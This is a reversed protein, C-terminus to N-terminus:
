DNTEFEKKLKLFEEYRQQKMKKDREELKKDREKKWEAIEEETIIKENLLENKLCEWVLVATKFSQENYCKIIGNEYDVDYMMLCNDETALVNHENGDAGHCVNFYKIVKGTLEQGDKVLKIM